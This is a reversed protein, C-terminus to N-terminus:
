PARWRQYRNNATITPVIAETMDDVITLTAMGSILRWKVSPCSRACHTLELKITAIVTDITKRVTIGKARLARFNEAAAVAVAPGGLTVFTLTGLLERVQDFQRQTPCGQPVETLILDGIALPTSGLLADLKEAQPTRRGRLYDIWVSSDVLIM